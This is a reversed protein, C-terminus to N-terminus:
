VDSKVKLIIGIAGAQIAINLLLVAVKGLPVVLGKCKLLHDAFEVTAFLLISAMVLYAMMQITTRRRELHSVFAESVITRRERILYFALATILLSSLAAGGMIAMNIPSM